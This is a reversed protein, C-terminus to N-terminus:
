RWKRPQSGRCIKTDVISSLITTKGAQFYTRNTDKEDRRKPPFPLNHFDAQAQFRMLLHIDVSSPQVPDLWPLLCIDRNIM